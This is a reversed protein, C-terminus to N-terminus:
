WLRWLRLKVKTVHPALEPPPPQLKHLHTYPIWGGWGVIPNPHADHAGRAPDPVICCFLTVSLCVSLCRVVAYVVSHMHLSM